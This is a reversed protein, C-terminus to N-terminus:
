GRWGGRRLAAELLQGVRDQRRRVAYSTFQLLRPGAVVIDAARDLDGDWALVELHQSGHVEAATDYRDWEADLYYKGDPRRRVSQRTPAPLHRRTIIVDFDKEPVSAIGCEADDISEVILAHHRCPGRTPLAARLLGPSTIRQQVGALIVARAFREHCMDAAADLLSRPTRTRRPARSPHVESPGLFGSWHTVVGDCQVRRHGRPITVHVAPDTFGRLGDLDLATLGSLAAGPPAIALAVLLHQRSTLPGNHTVVVPARPQQWRRGDLQAQIQGRSMHQLLDAIEHVGDSRADLEAFSERHAEGAAAAGSGPVARTVTMAATMAVVTGRRRDARVPADAIQPHRM